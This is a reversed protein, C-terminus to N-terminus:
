KKGGFAGHKRFCVHAYNGRSCLTLQFIARVLSVALFDFGPSFPPSFSPNTIGSLPRGILQPFILCTLDNKAALLPLNYRVYLVYSPSLVAGYLFSLQFFTFYNNCRLLRCALFCLCGALLQNRFPPPLAVLAAAFAAFAPFAHFAPFAPLSVRPM